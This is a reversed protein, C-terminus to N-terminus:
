LLGVAVNKGWIMIVSYMMRAIPSFLPKDVLSNYRGQFFQKPNFTVIDIPLQEWAKWLQGGWHTNHRVTDKKAM